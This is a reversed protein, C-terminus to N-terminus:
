EQSLKVILRFTVLFPENLRFEGVNEIRKKLEQYRYMKFLINLKKKLLRNMACPERSM